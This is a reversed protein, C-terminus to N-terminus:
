QSLGQWAANLQPDLQIRRQFDQHWPISAPLPEYTLMDLHQEIEKLTQTNISQQLLKARILDKPNREALEVLVDPQVPTSKSVTQSGATFTGVTLKLAETESTYMKQVSGKGHSSVGYLKARGREQLAGAVLEAASATEGNILIALQCDLLDTPQSIATHVQNSAPDRYSLATIQGEDLFWDALQVGELVNGGPNGRLDLILGELPQNEQQQLTQMDKQLMKVLDGGFRELQIYVFGPQIPQISYLISEVEDLVITTSLTEEARSIEVDVRTGLEQEMTYRINGVSWTDVSKGNIRQIKDGVMLGAISAPGHPVINTIIKSESIQIGAGVSWRDTKRRIQTYEEPPFYHSYEDLNEVMGQVAHHMLQPTEIVQIYDNQIRHLNLSFNYLGEYPDPKDLIADNAVVSGSFLGGAFVSLTVVCAGLYRFTM